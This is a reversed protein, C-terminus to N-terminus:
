RSNTAEALETSRPHQHNPNALPLQLHITTGTGDPHTPEIWTAGAMATTLGRAVHLGLGSGSIGNHMNPDLRHFKDFVREREPEPIGPGYDVVSIRLHDHDRSIRVDIPLEPPSYKHANDLLAALAQQLRAPDAIVRPPHAPAQVNIPRGPTTRARLADVAELLPALPDTPQLEVPLLGRGLSASTLLNEVLGALRVAQQRTIQILQDRRQSPLDRALLTEAAGYIASVPTRLEHSVTAIFDDKLRDLARLREVQRREVALAQELRRRLVGVVTATVAVTAATLFWVLTGHRIAGNSALALAYSLAIAGAQLAVAAVTFFYAIFLAVWFFFFGNLWGDSGGFYASVSALAVAAFGLLQYAAASLRVGAFWLAVGLACACVSTAVGAAVSSGAGGPFVLALLGLVGAVSFLAAGARAAAEREVGAAFSVSFGRRWGALLANV